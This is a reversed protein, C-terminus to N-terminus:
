CDVFVDFRLIGFVWFGVVVGFGCVFGCFGGRVLGFVVLWFCLGVWILGFVLFGFPGFDLRFLRSISCIALSNLVVIVRCPFDM